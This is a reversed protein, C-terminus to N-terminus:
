GTSPIPPLDDTNRSGSAQGPDQDTTDDYDSGAGQVDDSLLSGSMGATEDDATAETLGDSALGSTNLDMQEISDRTREEAPQNDM